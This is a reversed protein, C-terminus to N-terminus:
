QVLSPETAMELRASCLSPDAYETARVPGEWCVRYERLCQPCIYKGHIPWMAKTHVKQCWLESIKNLM